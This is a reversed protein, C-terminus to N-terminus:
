ADYEIIGYSTIQYLNVLTSRSPNVQDDNMARIDSSATKGEVEKDRDRQAADAEARRLSEKARAVGQLLERM